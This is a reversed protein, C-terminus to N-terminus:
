KVQVELRAKLFNEVFNLYSESFPYRTRCEGAKSPMLQRLRYYVATRVVRFPQVDVKSTTIYASLKRLLRGTKDAFVHCNETDQDLGLDKLMKSAYKLMNMTAQPEMNMNVMRMFRARLFVDEKGAESKFLVKHTANPPLTNGLSKGLVLNSTPQYTVGFSLSQDQELFPQTLGCLSCVLENELKQLRFGCEPCMGEQPTVNIHGQEKERPGFRHINNKSALKRVYDYSLGLDQAAQKLTKGYYNVLSWIQTVTPNSFSPKEVEFIKETKM